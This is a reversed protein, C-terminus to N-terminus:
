HRRGLLLERFEEREKDSMDGFTRALVAMAERDAETAGKPLRLRVEQVSQEAARRLESIQDRSLGFKEALRPLFNEPPSKRGTEVASLFAPTVDIGEAMDKLLMGRDLRLRRLARGLATLM